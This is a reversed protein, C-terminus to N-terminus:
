ARTGEPARMDATLTIIGLAGAALEGTIRGCLLGGAAGAILSRRAVLTEAELGSANDAITVHELTLTRAHIAMGSAPFNVIEFPGGYFAHTWWRTVSNGTVRSDSITLAGDVVLGGGSEAENGGIISRTLTADGTVLLAGGSMSAINDTAPQQLPFTAILDYV